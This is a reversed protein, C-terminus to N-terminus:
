KSHCGKIKKFKCNSYHFALFIFLQILMCGKDDVHNVKGPKKGKMRCLQVGTKLSDKKMSVKKASLLRHQDQPHHSHCCTHGTGCIVM